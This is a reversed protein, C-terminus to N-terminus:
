VFTRINLRETEPFYSILGCGCLHGLFDDNRQDMLHSTMKFHM